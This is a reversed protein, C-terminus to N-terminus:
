SQLQGKPEETLMYIFLFQLSDDDDDDDDYKYLRTFPLTFSVRYYATFVWLITLHQPDWM